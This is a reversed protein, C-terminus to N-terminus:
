DSTTLLKLYVFNRDSDQVNEIVSKLNAYSVYMSACFTLLILAVLIIFRWSRIHSSIEKGILVRMAPSFLSFSRQQQGSQLHNVKHMHLYRRKQKFPLNISIPTTFIM